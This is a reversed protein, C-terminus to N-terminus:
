CVAEWRSQLEEASRSASRLSSLASWFLLSFIALMRGTGLTIETDQQATAM